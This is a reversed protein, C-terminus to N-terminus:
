IAPSNAARAPAAPNVRSSNISRMRSNSGCGACLLYGHSSNSDLFGVADSQQQEDDRYQSPDPDGLDSLLGGVGDGTGQALRMVTGIEINWDVEADIEKIEGAAHLAAIWARLDGYAVPKREISM